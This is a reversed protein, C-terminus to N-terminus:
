PMTTEVLIKHRVARVFTTTACGLSRQLLPVGRSRVSQTSREPTTNYRQYEKIDNNRVNKCRM